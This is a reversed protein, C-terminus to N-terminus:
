GCPSDEVVALLQRLSEHHFGPRVRIIRGNGLLLEM